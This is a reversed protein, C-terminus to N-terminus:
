HSFHVEVQETKDAKSFHIRYTIHKAKHSPQQDVYPSHANQVLTHWEGEDIKREIAVAEQCLKEFDLRPQNQENLSIHVHGKPTPKHNKTQTM